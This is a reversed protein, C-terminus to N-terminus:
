MDELLDDIDDDQGFDDVYDGLEDEDDDQHAFDMDQM